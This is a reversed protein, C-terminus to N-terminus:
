GSGESSAAAARSGKVGWTSGGETEMVRRGIVKWERDVVRLQIISQQVSRPNRGKERGNFADFRGVDWVEVLKVTANVRRFVQVDQVEVLLLTAELRDGTRSLKDLLKYVEEIERRSAHRDLESVDMSSYADALDNLYGKTITEIEERQETTPTTNECGLCLVVTALLALAALGQRVVRRTM